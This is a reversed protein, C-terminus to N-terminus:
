VGCIQGNISEVYYMGKEGLVFYGSGHMKGDRLEGSYFLQDSFNLRGKTTQSHSPAATETKEGEATAPQEPTDGPKETRAEHTKLEEMISALKTAQEALGALKAAIQKSQSKDEQQEESVVWDFPETEKGDAKSQVDYESLFKNMVQLHPERFAFFSFKRVEDVKSNGLTSQDHPLAGSAIEVEFYCQNLFPLNEPHETKKIKQVKIDSFRFKKLQEDALAFLTQLCDSRRILHVLQTYHETYYINATNDILFYRIMYKATGGKNGPGTIERTFFGIRKAVSQM